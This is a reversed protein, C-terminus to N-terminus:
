DTKVFEQGPKFGLAELKSFDKKDKEPVAWALLYKPRSSAVYAFRTYEGEEKDRDLWQKWYGGKSKGNTASVVLVADLTQGKVQHITTVRIGSGVQQSSTGLTSEVTSESEGKASSIRVKVDAPSIGKFDVSCRKVIHGFEKNFGTVWKNWQISMDSIQLDSRCEDLVAGLFLRWEIESNVSKPMYNKSASYSENKFFKDAVYKGICDIAEKMSDVNDESWIYIATAPLKGGKLSKSSAGPRLKAIFDNARALVACNDIDLGNESVYKSFSDAMKALQENKYAFFICAPKCKGYDRGKLPTVDDIMKQCVDVIPQDSRFNEALELVEFDHQAVFAEVKKPYVKKFSYIAQSLDGVFHLKAGAENLLKLLEMQIWSLDQCEDVIIIPFREALLRSLEVDETTMLLWCLFEVDGYTAFGEKWFKQKCEWFGAIMKEKTLWEKGERFETFAESDYYEKVALVGRDKAIPNVFVFGGQEVDYSIANAFLPQQVLRRNRNGASRYYTFFTKCKYANLWGGGDTDAIVRISHDSDEGPYETALHAFPNAIYGHLWRDITGVYHPFLSKNLGIFQTVRERIVDAANNTFTLIAIGGSRRKWRRIEYAAKLGIIETKGSGPCAKLFTNKAISQKLYSRQGAVVIKEFIRCCKYDSCLANKGKSLEHCDEPSMGEPVNCVLGAVERFTKLNENIARGM